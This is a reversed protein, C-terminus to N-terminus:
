VRATVRFSSGNLCYKANTDNSNYICDNRKNDLLIGPWKMKDIKECEEKTYWKSTKNCNLLTYFHSFVDPDCITITPLTISKKIDYSTYKIHIHM